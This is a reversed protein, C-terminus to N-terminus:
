VAELVLRSPGHDGHRNGTIVTLEIVGLDIRLGLALTLAAFALVGSDVDQFSIHLIPDLVDLNTFEAGLQRSRAGRM